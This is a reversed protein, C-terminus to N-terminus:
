RFVPVVQEGNPLGVTLPSTWTVSIWMAGYTYAAGHSFVQRLGIWYNQVTYGSTPYLIKNAKMHTEVDNQEQPDCFIM